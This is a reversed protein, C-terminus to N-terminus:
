APRIGRLHEDLFFGALGKVLDHATDQGFFEAGRDLNLCVIRNVRGITEQM